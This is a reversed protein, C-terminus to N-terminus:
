GRTKIAELDLTIRINMAALENALYRFVYPLPMAVCGSGTGCSVCTWGRAPGLTAPESASAALVGDETRSRKAMAAAAGRSMAPGLLSGCHRCVVGVHRDSSNMLRDHLLFSTGHGLLSDREMEGFRIGGGKKRGKIPQRTLNNIPGTSRVQSKDSVMHRLRQYYVVGVFIDAHLQEGTIGSYMPESGHYQYGAARLQEGFFDVARHRESFRFPTSDQFRAHVSGAKGAMSETLMGITMRSPFAHPNIIIDPTMGGETFPMDRQPWLISMVGKQGHRSSFKDGVVPNRNIRLRISAKQVLSSPAKADAGLVAVAEVYAPESGKHKIVKTKGTVTDYVAYLPDGERVLTGVPPLGDADLSPVTRQMGGSVAVSGPAAIAAAGAASAATVPHNALVERKSEGGRSQAVLDINITKYVSAHAFGREYSAKNVIMADEMDIGTYAIVAVVANTGAPYEDMGFESQASNQVLPAQPTQIRFLKTDSRHPLALLPTGMTQKGMQCQYMNRPSQNMDSFPTLAAALSLMAMPSLEMHTFPSAAPDLADGPRMGAIDAFDRPSCAVDLYQQELPGLMEILGGGAAVAALSGAEDFGVAAEHSRGYVGPLLRVPRILRAAEGSLFLGAFPGTIDDDSGGAGSAPAGKSKSSSSSGTAAALASGGSAAGGASSSTSSAAAADAARRDAETAPLPAGGDRVLHERSPPPVFAVELSMPVARAMEAARAFPTSLGADADAPLPPLSSEPRMQPRVAPGHTQNDAYGVTATALVRRVRDRLRRRSTLAADAKPGIKRGRIPMGGDSPVGTADARLEAEGEAATLVAGRTAAIGKLLRLRAAIAAAVAPVCAGVIRGDVVVPLHDWPIVVGGALAVLPVMGLRALLAPLRATDAPHTTARAAAALHNLLGCPAGDPTHVPCMFGWSEPLLKRVTTTKMESFFQGRHVSRFHTVFRMFNIKDAVVTFGSAQMLDLGTSSQLTGTALLYYAKRGVDVRRDAIRRFFAGDYADMVSSARVAPPAPMGLPRAARLAEVDVDPAVARGAYVERKMAAEFGQLMESLKEKVFMCYLHGALLLEQNALSDPNDELVDGGVFRYLKRLMLCVMVFKDHSATEENHPDSLHVLVHRDLLLRGAEEDTATEPLDLEGRFRAGLFALSASRGGSSHGQGVQLRSDRLLLQVRDALHPDRAAGDPGGCVAHFIERDTTERLCRLVLVAPLFFEQRRLAFRLSAGGNVLYHLNITLASQDPRVSRVTVGKNSFLKGRNTFSSRTIAMPYNRRPMQLLRVVREIGNCIFYGGFESAEEHAAAKAKADMGAIHCRQSGVMIPLDGAQLQYSDSSVVVEHSPDEASPATVSRHLTVTLPAAYSMRRERCEAPMLRIDESGDRKTPQGVEAGELWLQVRKGGPGLRFDRAPIGEVATALGSELFFNFSEVHASALDCLRSDTDQPLPSASASPVTRRRKLSKVFKSDRHKTEM